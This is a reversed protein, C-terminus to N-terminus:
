IGKKLTLLRSGFSSKTRNGGDGNSSMKRVDEVSYFADPAYRDLLQSLENWRKRQAVTFLIKVQGFKGEGEIDTVRFEAERLKDLLESSEEPVIIRFIQTGVQMKEEIFIGVFTGTAFGAAFALYFLWNDLNQFIQAVVIVWILVEFFGCITAKAKMGKSVFMIRLTGLSVDMIRSFYIFLPLYTSPILEIMM